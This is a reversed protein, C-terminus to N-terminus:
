FDKTWRITLLNAQFDDAHVIDESYYSRQVDISLRGAKPVDAWVTGTALPWRLPGFTPPEGSIQSLGTTRVFDGSFNVGAHKRVKVSLGGQWVRNLFQDSWAATLPAVGRIFTVSDTAMYSDYSFGAFASFQETFSYSVNLANSRINNQFSTDLFKRNRVILSDEISLTSWPKLRFLLRSGVDTHPTIRTYSAGNTISQFDGRMSFIKSPQYYVSLTPWATKIERTRLPDAVGNTLAEVDNKLLRIGARVILSKAPIFEMNVNVLHTGVRWQNDVSGNAITAVDRVSHFLGTADETFRQYRYDTHFKWWSTLALSFGQDIVHNPEALQARDSELISFPAYTTFAANAPGSGTYTSDRSAPGSYRYFIYGGRISLRSNIKGDYSFESIPTKLQRSEQYSILVPMNPALPTNPVGGVTGTLDTNISTPLPNNGPLNQDFTQYGVRYHFNWNRLTYDLSGTVRNSLENVPVEVYYPFARAFSGWLSPSGFYDLDRTTFTTGDRTNREYDFGFRLHETAHLLFNLSGFRRVTAWDHNSTLGHGKYPPPMATPLAVSDNRDWYFYSQRVSVRLDYLKDKSVSLQGTSFPEGGLGSLSLSYRDAFPSTGEKARGFLNLDMLRLGKKLDFLELYKQERGKVDVFRYGFTASGQTEFDGLVLPATDQAWASVAFIVLGAIGMVIQRFFRM